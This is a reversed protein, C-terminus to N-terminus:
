MFGNTTPTFLATMDTVGVFIAVKGDTAALPRNFSLVIRELPAVAPKGVFSAKVALASTQARAVIHAGALLLILAISQWASRKRSQFRISIIPQLM